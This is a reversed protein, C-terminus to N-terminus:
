ASKKAIIIYKRYLGKDIKIKKVILKYLRLEEIIEKIEEEINKYELFDAYVISVFLGDKKLARHISKAFKKKDIIFKITEYSIILDFFNSFNRPIEDKEGIIVYYNDMNKTKKKIKDVIKKSIELAYVKINHKKALNISIDGSFPGFDLIIANDNIFSEFINLDNKYTFKRVIYPIPYLKSFYFKITKPSKKWITKISIFFLTFFIMLSIFISYYNATLNYLYLYIFFALLYVSIFLKLLRFKNFYKSSLKIKIYSIIYLIYIYFVTSSFFLLFDLINRISTFLIILITSLIITNKPSDYKSKEKFIAPFINVEAAYSLINNMTYFWVYMNLIGIFFFVINLISMLSEINYIRSIFIYFIISLLFIILTGILTANGTKRNNYYNSYFTLLDIGAFISSSFIISYSLYDLSANSITSSNLFSFLVLVLFILISITSTIKIYSSEIDYNRYNMFAFILIMLIPIIYKISIYKALFNDFLILLSSFFILTSLYYLIYAAAFAYKSLKLIYHLIGLKNPDRTISDRLLYSLLIFASSSITYFILFSDIPIIGYDEIFLILFPITSFFISSVFIGIYEIDKKGIM